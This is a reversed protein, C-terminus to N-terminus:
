GLRMVEAGDVARCLYIAPEIDTERRYARAVSDIFSSACDERVLAVACGGFGGGTMRAGLCGEAAQACAVMADLAPSSIEFDDRMSVHSQDMLRGFTAADGRKLAEAAALTRANETLVHRIRRRTTDDLGRSGQEFDDLSVDRLMPRGFHRAGATCQAHRENYASGVLGRRTNTDLVMVATGAPLPVPTSELSRCDLLIAHGARGGASIAQDMIGTQAGIWANEVARGIQAMDAVAIDFGGVAAFVGVLAMELAASSSLGAGVPVDGAIVGRFGHLPYGKQGLSWAVGKAYEIWLPGSKAFGDLPFGGSKEFDLSELTISPEDSPEAAIWINRDIAMPLVFGDNYDTHEGILNVRGPARALLTAGHGFRRRFADQVRQDPTM